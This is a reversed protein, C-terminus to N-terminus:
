GFALLAEETEAIDMPVVPPEKGDKFLNRRQNLVQTSQDAWRCNSPEYHGQVNIRDLSKGVPRPGMDELFNVFGQGRQLRWRPCVTIGRGGYSQYIELSKYCCRNIM